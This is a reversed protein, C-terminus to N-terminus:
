LSPTYSQRKNLITLMQKNKDVIIKNLEMNKHKMFANIKNLHEIEGKNRNRTRENESKEKNYMAMLEYYKMKLMNNEQVVQLM